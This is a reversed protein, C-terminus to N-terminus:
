DLGEWGTAAMKIKCSRISRVCVCVCLFSSVGFSFRLASIFFFQDRIEERGGSRM